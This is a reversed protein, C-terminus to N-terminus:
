RAPILTLRVRTVWDRVVNVYVVTTEYGPASFGLQHVGAHTDVLSAQLDNAVGIPVGDLTIEAEMPFANIYLSGGPSFGAYSSSHGMAYSFTDAPATAPTGAVLATTLLALSFLM